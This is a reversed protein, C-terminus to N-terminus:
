DSGGRNGGCQRLYGWDTAAALPGTTTYPYALGSRHTMLDEVTIARPAPDTEDLPGDARRLVRINSFEPVWKTIPDHLALKREEVLMLAAVSTIPKSMSAIRFITGAEMPLKREIDRWGLANLQALAGKRWVLTVVGPLEGAAIASDLTSRVMLLKDASFGGAAPPQTAATSVFAAVLAVSLAISRSSM